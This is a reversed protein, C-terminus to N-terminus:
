FFLERQANCKWSDLSQLVSKSDVCVLINYLDLPSEIIHIPAMLIAFLEATFISFGSGLYFSQRIGLSPIVFGSGSDGSDLVSGDTYIQLHNPYQQEIHIRADTALMNADESKKFASYDM